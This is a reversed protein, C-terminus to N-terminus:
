AQDEDEDEIQISTNELKMEKRDNRKELRISKATHIFINPDYDPQRVDANSKEGKKIKEKM